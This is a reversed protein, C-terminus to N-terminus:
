RMLEWTIRAYSSSKHILERKGTVAGVVFYVPVRVAVALIKMAIGATRQIGIFNKRIFRMQSHHLQHLFTDSSEMSGGGFHIIEASPVFYTDFGKVKARWCFDTEETYMFYAEDFLGVQDFVKRRVMMFAGKVVDSRIPRDYSFYSMYYQGFLKTRGFLRYLFSAECFLNWVSPFSILSPQLSRDANLLRCGAIAVDRHDQMFALVNRLAHPLVETDSNLLLIFEGCAIQIAQNNGAAFGANSFNRILHVSPFERAVMEASGDRSANDVVIIEHDLGEATAAISRLCGKLLAKTNYNVLIISLTV